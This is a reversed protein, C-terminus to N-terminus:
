EVESDWLTLIANREPSDGLIELLKIRGDADNSVITRENDGFQFREGNIDGYTTKLITVRERSLDLLQFIDYTTIEMM